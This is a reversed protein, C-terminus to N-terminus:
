EPDQFGTVNLPASDMLNETLTAYPDWAFTICGAAGCFWPTLMPLALVPPGDCIPCRPCAINETMPGRYPELEYCLHAM